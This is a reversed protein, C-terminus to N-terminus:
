RFHGAGLDQLHALKPALSKRLFAAIKHQCNPGYYAPVRECEYSHNALSRCSAGNQCPHTYCLDCKALVRRPSTCCTTCGRGSCSSSVGPGAPPSTTYDELTIPSGHTHTTHTM